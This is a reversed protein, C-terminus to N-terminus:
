AYYLQQYFYGYFLSRQGARHYRWVVMAAAAVMFGALLLFYILANAGPDRSIFCIVIWCLLVFLSLVPFIFKGSGGSQVADARYESQVM